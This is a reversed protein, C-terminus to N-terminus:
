QEAVRWTRDPKYQTMAQAREVTKPGLDKEYVKGDPAAAFTM